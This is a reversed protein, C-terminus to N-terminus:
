DACQGSLQRSRCCASRSSAACCLPRVARFRSEAPGSGACRRSRHLGCFEASGQEGASRRSRPIEELYRAGAASGESRWDGSSQFSRSRPHPRRNRAPRPDGVRAQPSPRAEPRRPPRTGTRAAVAAFGPYLPLPCSLGEQGGGAAEDGVGHRRRLMAHRAAVPERSSQHTM